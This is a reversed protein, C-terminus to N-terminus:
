TETLENLHSDYNRSANDILLSLPLQPIFLNDKPLLDSLLLFLELTPSSEFCLTSQFVPLIVSELYYTECGLVYELFYFRASNLWKSSHVIKLILSTQSHLDIYRQLSLYPLLPATSFWILRRGRKRRNERRSSHWTRCPREVHCQLYGRAAAAARCRRRQRRCQRRSQRRRAISCALRM